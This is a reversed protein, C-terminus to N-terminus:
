ELLLNMIPALTPVPEDSVFFNISSHNENPSLARDYVQVRRSAGFCNICQLRVGWQDSGIARNLGTVSYDTTSMGPALTIPSLVRYSLDPKNISFVTLNFNLTRDATRDLTIGGSISARTIGILNLEDPLEDPDLYASGSLGFRNGSPSYYQTPLDNSCAICEISISYSIPDNIINNILYDVNVSGKPLTITTSELSTVPRLIALTPPIVVFAHNRVTIVIQRDIDSPGIDLSLSGSLSRTQAWAANGLVIAIILSALLLGKHM